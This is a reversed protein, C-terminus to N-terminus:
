KDESLMNLIGKIAEGLKLRSLNPDGRRKAEIEGTALTKSSVVLRLPAGILDADKFRVGPREPRDDLLVDIGAEQLERYLKEAAAMVEQKDHEVPILCVGFPAIATPWRIGDKDHSQEIAAAVVRSVGIGYCGMVMPKSEQREDLYNAKLSVSYKTGLKFTHGVEIGRTFTIKGGCRPCPDGLNMMRLDAYSDPTFDRGPNINKQHFDKKNAGSVANALGRVSFDAVVRLVEMKGQPSKWQPLNVPGAFGVPCALITEYQAETARELLGAGAASALKAENLEHDGRVLAVLPKEDAMYFQIKIFKQTPLKLLKAVDEVTYLNPTSVDELPLPKEASQPKPELCEARDLNAGYDCSACAAITNEGTDALVMFEHSYSGGIAGTAAEVPRFKLGCRTFIRKYAEFIEQYYKQCDADNVHFSYADKMLFERARMVGFRPRIEDRFKLGIQYLMLPLQRWSRVERRVLDTVVEEATPAFCFESGKRDKIRLLEKGYIKWRGTEEWLEKPQILPLSVEQGGIRDMEERVIAEVKRLVRWGLPLWEYLGAAIKRIMGARQMLEASANDADSPAERLTPILYRM